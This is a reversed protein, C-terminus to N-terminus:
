KVDVSTPSMHCLDNKGIAYTYNSIPPCLAEYVCGKCPEVNKRIRRWSKGHYMEKYLVDYISDKGLIGLRSANVNAHIHGNSLITLRGFNMSNLVSNAYIDSMKPKSELLEEKSTFACDMFFNLNEGNFFPQFDANDMELSSIVTSAKEFEEMSQVIFVFRTKLKSNNGIKQAEKLKEKNIPLPALIKLSSAAPNLYKLNGSGQVLNSYHCYYFIQPSLRNILGTLKIFKSYAFINGGLINLNAPPRGSIEEFLNKLKEIDLEDKGKNKTTCCPFQRFAKSCIDCNLECKNNLYLSIQSINELLDEGVSRNDEVKLHKVDQHIKTIPLMQVPKEESFSTDIIDGMYMKRLDDVFQSIVPDNLEEGTLLIVQLSKSSKLKKVLNLIKENGSYELAGGSLSNYLLLSEKKLSIHVYTEITLWWQKSSNIM